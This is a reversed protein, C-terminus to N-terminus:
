KRTKGKPVYIEMSVKGDDMVGARREEFFFKPDKRPSGCSAWCGFIYQYAMYRSNRGGNHSFVAYSGSNVRRSKIDKGSIKRRVGYFVEVDADLPSSCFCPYDIVRVVLYGKEGREMGARKLISALKKVPRIGRLPATKRTMVDSIGWLKFGKVRATKPKLSFGGLLKLDIEKGCIGPRERYYLNKGNNRYAVPTVGFQKKFARSFVEHNKFGVSKCIRLVTKGTSTLKRAALTLRRRRIYSGITENFLLKFVHWFRDVSLGAASAAAKYSVRKKINREVYDVAKRINDRYRM